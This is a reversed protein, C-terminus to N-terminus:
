LFDSRVFDHGGLIGGIDGKCCTVVLLGELQDLKRWLEESQKFGVIGRRTYGWARSKERPFGEQYRELSVIVADEGVAVADPYARRLVPVFVYWIRWFFVDFGM